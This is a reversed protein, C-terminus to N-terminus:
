DAFAITYHALAQAQTPNHEGFCFLNLRDRRVAQSTAHNSGFPGPVCTSSSTAARRRAATGNHNAHQIDVLSWRRM